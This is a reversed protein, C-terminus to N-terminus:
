WGVKGQEKRNDKDQLAREAATQSEDLPGAPLDFDTVTEFRANTLVPDDGLLAQSLFDGVILLANHAGQGWWDSRFNVRRDNFGVWAGTVLEPHMAIFWGDGNNQTTGTKGAIDFAGLGFQSNLRRGTGEKIVGRLMDTMIVATRESLAEAPARTAEYIVIGYKDEVRTVITPQNYLGRHALTSFASTMELLTVDSVGLALAPVEDLKSEVGMLRAYQATAKAGIRIVLQGTIINNSQALGERLTLMDGSGTSGMNEPSWENGAEDVYTFVTDRLMHYPSYGNDIAATYVFPKFTSGPQRKALAVHDYWDVALDRGGVWSRIHGTNPDISVLGAELRTKTAKLSDMFTEDGRLAVLVDSDSKGGKRLKKYRPTERVFSQVLEKNSKWFYDFPTYETLKLYDDISHGVEYGGARSWEYDVVAQLGDMQRKLADAAMNQIRSDITTYVTLGDAYPDCGSTKCFDNLWQRVAESAHPAIGETIESSVFRTEVQKERVEDLYSAPLINHKIMQGLVVNRRKRSNEPNRIPNYRTIAKQMGVLTASELTDLLMPDKGFITRAAADIGFANNSFEVTNLYMEIIENKSYRRELQVATVMEKLKREVTVKRGIQDNYLNRALQQSLTSGGQPNGRLVHYPIAFTRVLDIGWHSRFRHDETAVLADIVTPSINEYAVWSRNQRAYRQLELGDSTYAVTALQFRPNDIESIDPLQGSFTLFYIGLVVLGIFGVIALIGLATAAQRKKATDFIRGAWGSWQSEGNNGRGRKDDPMQEAARRRADPDKFYSSLERDSYDFESM